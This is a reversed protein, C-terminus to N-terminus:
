SHRRVALMEFFPCYRTFGLREYIRIASTNAQAVNLFVHRIGRRFLEAVVASTAASGYGRGRYAEDTYVNGIAGMGHTPSVLHTGAAAVVRGRDCVGYFAGTALQTPSFADGDGQAYLRWLEDTHRPSLPVVEPSYAPRFDERQITMRWMPTPPETHFFARAVSLHREQCTLFVRKHRLGLRLISALGAPDGALFLAPPDLGKFLLAITQLQEDKEAGVWETQAFLAPELDGIAYAAYLMDTQLFRLIENKDTLKRTRM